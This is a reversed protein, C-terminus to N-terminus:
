SRVVIILQVDSELLQNKKYRQVEIMSLLVWFEDIMHM